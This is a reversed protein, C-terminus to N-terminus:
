LVSVGQRIDQLSESGVKIFLAATTQDVALLSSYTTWLGVGLLLVAALAAPLPIDVSGHWFARVRGLIGSTRPKKAESLLREKLHDQDEMSFFVDKLEEEFRKKLPM